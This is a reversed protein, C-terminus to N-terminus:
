ALQLYRMVMTAAEARTASNQPNLAGNSGQVIQTETAWQLAEQAYDSVLDADTFTELTDASAELKGAYRWLMTALEERTVDKDPKFTGDAYGEVV